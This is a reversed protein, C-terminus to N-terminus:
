KGTMPSEKPQIVQIQNATVGLEGPCVSMELDIVLDGQVMIKNGQFNGEELGAKRLQKENIFVTFLISSSKPLYKAAASSGSEQMDFSYVKPANHDRGMMSKIIRLPTAPIGTLTVKQPM